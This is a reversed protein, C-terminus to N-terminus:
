LKNQNEFVIAYCYCLLLMAVANCCFLLLMAVAYCSSLFRMAVAYMFSLRLEMNKVFIKSLKAASCANVEEFETLEM